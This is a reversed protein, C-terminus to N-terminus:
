GDPVSCSARPCAPPPHSVPAPGSAVVSVVPVVVVSGAVPRHSAVVPHLFVLDDPRHLSAPVPSHRRRRSPVTAVPGPVVPVDPVVPLPARLPPRRPSDSASVRPLRCSVVPGVPVSLPPSPVAARAVPAARRGAAVPVFPVGPSRHRVPLRGAPPTPLGGRLPSGQHRAWVVPAAVIIISELDM